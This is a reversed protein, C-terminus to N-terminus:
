SFSPSPFSFFEKAKNENLGPCALFFRKWTFYKFPDLLKM